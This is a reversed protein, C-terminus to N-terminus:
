DTVKVNAVELGWNGAFPEWSYLDWQGTNESFQLGFIRVVNDDLKRCNVFKINNPLNKINKARTFYENNDKFLDNLQLITPM